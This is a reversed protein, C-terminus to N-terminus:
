FTVSKIVKKIRTVQALTLEESRKILVNIFDKSNNENVCIMARQAHQAVEKPRCTELHNLLIPFVIKSYEENAKCLKAFVTISNDITIVSGNNYADLLIDLHKFIADANLEAITTLATMGGWVLRNQKSQLLAIFEETYSSILKPDRAGVEYLVKICDNAITANKSKLGDVIQQVGNKDQTSCLLQALEINPEEDNRNLSYALKEIM